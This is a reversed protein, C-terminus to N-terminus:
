FPTLLYVRYECFLNKSSFLLGYKILSQRKTEIRQQHIALACSITPLCKLVSVNNSSHCTRQGRDTGLALPGPSTDPILLIWYLSVTVLVPALASLSVSM